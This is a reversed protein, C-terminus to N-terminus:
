PNSDVFKLEFEGDKVEFPIQKMERSGVSLAMLMKPAAVPWRLTLPFAPLILDNLSTLGVFINKKADVLPTEVRVKWGVREPLGVESLPKVGSYKLFADLLRPMGPGERSSDWEFSIPGSEYLTGMMIATYFTHGKGYDNVVIGPYKDNGMSMGIVEASPAIVKIKKLEFGSLHWNGVAKAIPHKSDYQDWIEDVHKFLQDAGLTRLVEPDIGGAVPTTTMELANKAATKDLPKAVVAPHIGFIDMLVRQTRDYEDFGGPWQDGALCGGGKVWQALKNAADVPVHNAGIMFVAGVDKLEGASIQKPTIWRVPYGLGRLIAYIRYPNDIAASYIGLTTQNLSLDLRSYYLAVPKVFAEPKAPGLIRELHHAEQNADAIVGLKDRPTDDSNLLGWMQYMWFNPTPQFAWTAVGKVGKGIMGWYAQSMNRPDQSHVNFENNLLRKGKTLSLLLDIDAGVFSDATSYADVGFEPENAFAINILDEFDLPGGTTFTPSNLSLCSSQSTCHVKKGSYARAVKGKEAVANVYELGSFERFAFWAAKNDTEKPKQPLPIEGFNKYDTNWLTNLNAITGLRQALWKHFVEKAADGYDFYGSGEDSIRVIKADEDQLFNPLRATMEDTSAKQFPEYSLSFNTDSVKGDANVFRGTPAPIRPTFKQAVLYGYDASIEIDVGHKSSGNQWGHDHNAGMQVGWAYDRYSSSQNVFAFSFRKMPDSEGAFFSSHATIVPAAQMGAPPTPEKVTGSDSGLKAVDAKAPDFAKDDTLIVCDVGLKGGEEGKSPGFSITGEMPHEFTMEFSSWVFQPKTDTSESTAVYEMPKATGLNAHQRFDVNHSGVGQGISDRFLVYFSTYKGPTNYHRVWVKYTGAKPIVVPIPNTEASATGGLIAGDVAEAIQEVKWTPVPPQSPLIKDISGSGAKEAEIKWTTASLMGVGLGFFCISLASIRMATSVPSNKM